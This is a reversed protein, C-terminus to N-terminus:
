TGSLARRHEQRKALWGNFMATVVVLAGVLITQTQQLVGTMDLGFRLLGLFLLGLFTGIVSGSGGTIRTGGVVVCAIAELELGTNANPRASAYHAMYSIAGLGCALGSALFLGFRLSSVPIAAYRAALENEGLQLTWRGLCTKRLIFEGLAVFLLLLVFQQPPAFTGKGVTAFGGWEEFAAPLNGVPQGHSIGMALGRFMALTALTAVLPPLRLVSAAVGNAAGGIAGTVVATGLTLSLPWHLDRHCIGAVMASLALLSGVSLDIGGAAIIFTMPVAVLGVEIWLRSRDLLNIPDRFQESACGFGVLLVALACLLGSHRSALLYKLRLM